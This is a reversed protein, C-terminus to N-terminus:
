RHGWGNVGVLLVVAQLWVPRDDAVGQIQRCGAERNERASCGFFRGDLMPEQVRGGIRGDDSRDEASWARDQDPDRGALGTAEIDEVEIVPVAGFGPFVFVKDTAPSV